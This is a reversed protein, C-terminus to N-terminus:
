PTYDILKSWSYIVSSEGKQLHESVTSQKLGVAEAIDRQTCKRPYQYYGLEIAKLLVIRRKSPMSNISKLKTNESEKESLSFSIKEPIAQIARLMLKISNSVGSITIKIETRSVYSPVVFWIGNLLGLQRPIRGGLRAVVLSEHATESLVSEIQLTDNNEYEQLPQKHRVKAIVCVMSNKEASRFNSIFEISEFFELLSVADINGFNGSDVQLQLTRINGM